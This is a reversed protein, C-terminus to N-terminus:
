KQETLAFKVTFQSVGYSFLALGSLMCVLSVLYITVRAQAGFVGTLAVIIAEVQINAAVAYVIVGWGISRAAARVPSPKSGVYFFFAPIVIAVVNSILDITSVLDFAPKSSVPYAFQFASFGAMIYAFVGKFRFKLVRIDTVLIFVWYGASSVVSALKWFWVNPFLYYKDPDFRTLGFDFYMYLLRAVLLCTILVVVGHIFGFRMTGTRRKHEVVKMCIFVDFVALGVVFIVTLVLFTNIDSEAIDSELIM